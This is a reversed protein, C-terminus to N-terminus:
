ASGRRRRPPTAPPSSPDSVITGPVSRVPRTRRPRHHYVWDEDACQGIDIERRSETPGLHPHPTERRQHGGPVARTGGTASRATHQRQSFHGDQGGPDAVTTASRTLCRGRKLLRLPSDIRGASRNTAACVRFTVEHILTSVPVAVISIRSLCILGVGASDALTSPTVDILVIGTPRTPQPRHPRSM